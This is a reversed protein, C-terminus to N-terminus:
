LPAYGEDGYEDEEGDEGDEPGLDEEEHDIGEDGAGEEDEEDDSIDYGYDDEEQAIPGEDEDEHEDEDEDEDEDQVRSDVSQNDDDSEDDDIDMGDNDETPSVSAGKHGVAGGLYKMFMDRDIFMNVYYFQWDSLGHTATTPIDFADSTQSHKDLRKLERAASFNQLHNADFDDALLVDHILSDVESISKMDSTGYM